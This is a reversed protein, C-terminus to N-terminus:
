IGGFVGSVVEICRVQARLFEWFGGRDRMRFGRFIRQFLSSHNQFGRVGESGWKFCKPGELIGKFLGM